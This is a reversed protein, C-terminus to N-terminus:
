NAAEKISTQHFSVFARQFFVGKILSGALDPYRHHHFTGDVQASVSINTWSAM